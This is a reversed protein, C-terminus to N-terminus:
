GGGPYGGDPLVLVQYAEVQLLTEVAQTIEQRVGPAAAGTAVVVVGSIQPGVLAQSTRRSGYETEAGRALTVAVHVVGSGPIAAVIGEVEQDLRGAQGNLGSGSASLAPDAHASAHAGTGGWSGWAVLGLGLAGVAVLRWMASRDDRWLNQLSTRWNPNM